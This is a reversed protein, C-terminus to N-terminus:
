PCSFYPFEATIRAPDPAVGAGLPSNTLVSLVNDLVNDMLGRGNMGTYDFSAPTGLEYPLTMSGFLDAVRRAYAAPDASTGALTVYKTVTDITRAVFRSNDGSPATSNFAESLEDDNLHLHTFMPLGWRAVQQEPAHGCLSVTAWAQVRTTSSILENPAEVVIGAVTRDRFVNVHNAFAEPKYVGAASADRFDNLGANAGFVDNVVGAFVRVGSEGAVTVGTTGSAILEGSGGQAADAGTALRLEFTQAHGGAPAASHVVEAFELKFSVEEHADSDTDFRFVYLAEDRFPASTEATAAPNVTMAMVTTKGPDGAFLYFDCLNLRPDERGTPTDFHHSM